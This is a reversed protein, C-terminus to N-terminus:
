HPTIFPCTTRRARSDNPTASGDGAQMKQWALPDFEMAFAEIPALTSKSVSPACRKLANEFHLKAIVRRGRLDVSSAAEAALAAHICMTQIDSGSYGATAVAFEQLKVNSDIIEERLIVGFLSKRTATSPLAIYLKTAARRLVAHDLQGLFNSALIVFPAIESKVLDDMEALFQNTRDREWSRDEPRRQRFLSEAEDVFIISPSLMRALKFLGNIAKETQGVYMDEIDAVTISILNAEFEHAVVRALHTKGTGPPGYLL